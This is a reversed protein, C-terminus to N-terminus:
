SAPKVFVYVQEEGVRKDHNSGNRMGPTNVECHWQLELGLRCLTTVHWGSVYQREGNRVHDKINLVFLGGGRLVRLAERWAIEHFTRYTQGWQMAGSNDEHLKRGLDHTYSRRVSGDKANHKDAFRNGYTPSTCIADFSENDFQLDLANGVYTREHMNAWEPEIEVGVTDYPGMTELLHIRGTGAFPDLVRIHKTAEGAKNVPVASALARSFVPLLVTSYRAPHKM